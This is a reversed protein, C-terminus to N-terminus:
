ERGATTPSANYRVVAFRKYRIAAFGQFPKRGGCTVKRPPDPSVYWIMGDGSTIGDRWLRAPGGGAHTAAALGCCTLRVACSSVLLRRMAVFRRLGRNDRLVASRGDRGMGFGDITMSSGSTLPGLFTPRCPTAGCRNVVWLALATHNWSRAEYGTRSASDVREGALPGTRELGQGRQRGGRRRPFRDTGRVDATAHGAQRRVRRFGVDQVEPGGTAAHPLGFIRALVPAREPVLFRDQVDAGQCDIRADGSM